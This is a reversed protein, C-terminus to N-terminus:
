VKGGEADESWIKEVYQEEFSESPPIITIIDLLIGNPDSTIFHRQGFEEDRLELQIPLKEEEILKKYMADVDEVEFNLILGQSKTRFGEPITPHTASLIALEFPMKGKSQRLSVYWDAEFVPEFGFHTTYFASTTAVDDTLIVPYFSNIMMQDNVGKMQNNKDYCVYLIYTFLIISEILGYHITVVECYKSTVINVAHDLTPHIVFPPSSHHLYRFAHKYCQDTQNGPMNNKLQEYPHDNVGCELNRYHKQSCKGIQQREPSRNSTAIIRSQACVNM